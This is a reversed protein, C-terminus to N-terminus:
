LLGDSNAPYNVAKLYLSLAEKWEKFHVSLNDHALDLCGPPHIGITIPQQARDQPM